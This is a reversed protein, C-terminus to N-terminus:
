VISWFNDKYVFGLSDIYDNRLARYEKWFIDDVEFKPSEIHLELTSAGIKSNGESASKLINRVYSSKNSEFWEQALKHMNAVHNTYLDVAHAKINSM